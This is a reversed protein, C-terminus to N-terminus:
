KKHKNIYVWGRASAEQTRQIATEQMEEDHDTNWYIAGSEKLPKRKIMMDKFATIVGARYRKFAEVADPHVVFSKDGILTGDCKRGTHECEYITLLNTADNSGGNGHPNVHHVHLKRLIAPVQCNNQCGTHFGKEESYHRM